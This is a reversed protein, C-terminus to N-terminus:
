RGPATSYALTIASASGTAPRSRWSGRGRTDSSDFLKATDQYYFCDVGSRITRVVRGDKLFILLNRSSKYVDHDIVRNGFIKEITEAPTGEPVFGFHDWDFGTISRLRLPTTEGIHATIRRDLDLDSETKLGQSCATIAFLLPSLLFASLIHHM